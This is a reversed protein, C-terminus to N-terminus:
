GPPRVARDTAARPEGAEARDAEADQLAALDPKGTRRYAEALTRRTGVNKQLGGAVARELDDAAEPSRPWAAV